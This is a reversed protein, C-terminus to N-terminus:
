RSCSPSSLPSTPAGRHISVFGVLYFHDDIGYAAIFVIRTYARLVIFVFVLATMTWVVGMQRHSDGTGIM